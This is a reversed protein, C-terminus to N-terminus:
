KGDGCKKAVIAILPKQYKEKAEGLSPYFEIAEFGCERLLSRYQHDTYAQYTTACRTV